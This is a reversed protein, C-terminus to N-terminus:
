VQIFFGIFFRLLLFLWYQQVYSLAIGLPLYGLYSLIICRYRGYQDALHGFTMSGSM